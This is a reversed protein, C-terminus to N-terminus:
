TSFKGAMEQLETALRTQEQSTSATHKAGEATQSALNNISDVNQNIEEAVAGQQEVATAIHVNMEKIKEVAQIIETLTHGANEVKELSVKAKEQGQNMVVVAEKTGLQLREIIQQIEQTSEQTRGALTRVEDAVVAFGRGQEGARAAEIAANLALLNTQEAIGRIVGVVTGIADSEDKLKHIVSSVNQVENAMDTTAAVAENVVIRGKAAETNALQAVQEAEAANRAVDRVSAAMETMAAAVQTTENQQQVMGQNTQTSVVSLSEAGSTLNNSSQHIEAILGGVKIALENFNNALAAFEDKGQYVMRNSLDGKAFSRMAQTAMALPRNIRRLTIVSIFLLVLLAIAATVLLINRSQLFVHKAEAEANAVIGDVVQVVTRLAESMADSTSEVDTLLMQLEDSLKISQRRLSLISHGEYLIEKVSNFERFLTDILKKLEPHDTTKAKVKDMSTTVSQIVQTLQNDKISNLVDPSRELMIRQGMSSIMAVGTRIIESDKQLNASHDLFHEGIQDRFHLIIQPDDLDDIDEVGKIKKYLKRIRRIARKKEFNIKGAIAESSEQINKTANDMEEAHVAQEEDIHLINQKKEFLAMDASLFDNFAKNLTVLPQKISEDSGAVEQARNMALSFAQELGERTRLDKLKETSDASLIGTQRALIGMISKKFARNAAQLPLTKDAVAQQNESIDHYSNLSTLVQILVVTVATAVWLILLGKITLNIKYM